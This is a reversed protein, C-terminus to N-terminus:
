FINVKPHEMAEYFGKGHKARPVWVDSTLELRRNELYLAVINRTNGPHYM